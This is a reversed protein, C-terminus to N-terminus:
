EEKGEAAPPDQIDSTDQAYLIQQHTLLMPGLRCAQLVPPEASNTIYIWKLFFKRDQDMYSGM